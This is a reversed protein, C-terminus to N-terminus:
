LISLKNKLYDDKILTRALKGSSTMSLSHAPVFLVQAQVGAFQNIATQVAKKQVIQTEPLMFSKSEILVVLTDEQPGEIGMAIIKGHNVDCLTQEVVYEIDQVWINRGHIIILDKTRGTVYLQENFLYGLDGTNM